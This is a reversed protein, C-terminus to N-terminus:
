RVLPCHRDFCSDSQLGTAFQSQNCPKKVWRPLRKGLPDSGWRGVRRHCFDREARHGVLIESVREFDRGGVTVCGHVPGIRRCAARTCAHERGHPGTDLRPALVSSDKRERRSPSRSQFDRPTGTRITHTEHPGRGVSSHKRQTSTVETIPLGLAPHPIPTLSPTQTGHVFVIAGRGDLASWIPDYIDDGIYESRRHM